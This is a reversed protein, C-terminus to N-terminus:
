RLHLNIIQTAEEVTIRYWEGQRTRNQEDNQLREALESHVAQEISLANDSPFHALYEFSQEASPECTRYATMRQKLDVAKGIKIWGPWSINHLIYVFGGQIREAEITYADRGRPSSPVDNGELATRRDLIKDLLKAPSESTEFWFHLPRDFNNQGNSAVGSADSWLDKCWADVDGDITAGQGIRVICEEHTPYWAPESNRVKTGVNATLIARLPLRNDRMRKVAILKGERMQTGRQNSGSGGLSLIHVVVHSGQRWAVFDSDLPRNDADLIYQRETAETPQAEFDDHITM